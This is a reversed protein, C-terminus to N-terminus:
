IISPRPKWFCLGGLVNFGVPFQQNYHSIMLDVAVALNLVYIVWNSFRVLGIRDKCDSVKGNQFNGPNLVISVDGFFSCLSFGSIDDCFEWIDM